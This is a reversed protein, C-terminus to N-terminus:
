LRAIKLASELYTIQILAGLTHETTLIIQILAGLTHEITLIDLMSADRCSIHFLFIPEM